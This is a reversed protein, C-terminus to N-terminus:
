RIKGRWRLRGFRVRPRRSPKPGHQIQETEKKRRTAPNAISSEISDAPQGNTRVTPDIRGRKRFSTQAVQASKGSTWRVNQYELTRTTDFMWRTERQRATVSLVTSRKALQDM